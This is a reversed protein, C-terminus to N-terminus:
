CLISSTKKIKDRTIKDQRKNYKDTITGQHVEKNQYSAVT